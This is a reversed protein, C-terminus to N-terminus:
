EWQVDTFSVTADQVFFGSRGGPMERTTLVVGDVEITVQAGKRVLKLKRRKVHDGPLPVEDAKVRLGDHWTEIRLTPAVVTILTYDLRGYYGTVLGARGGRKPVEGLTCAITNSRPDRLVCFGFSGYGATGVIGAAGRDEWRETPCEFPTQQSEVWECELCACGDM